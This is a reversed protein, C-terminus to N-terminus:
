IEDVFRWVYTFFSIRLRVNDTDKVTYRLGTTFEDANRHIIVSRDLVDYLYLGADYFAPADLSGCDPLGFVEAEILLGGSPVQYFYVMGRLSPYILM